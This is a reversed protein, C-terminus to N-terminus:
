AIRGIEQQYTGTVNGSEDYQKMEVTVPTYGVPNGDDDLVDGLGPWEVRVLEAYENGGQEEIYELAMGYAAGIRVRVYGKLPPTNVYGIFDEVIAAEPNGGEGFTELAFAALATLGTTVDEDYPPKLKIIADVTM